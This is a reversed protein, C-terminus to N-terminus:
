SLKACKRKGQLKLKKIEDYAQKPTFGQAILEKVKTRRISNM